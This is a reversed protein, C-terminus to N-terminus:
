GGAGWGSGSGVVRVPQGEAVEDRGTVVVEDGPVLGWEVLVMGDSTPGTVVARRRAVWAGDAAEVVLVAEGREDREVLGVPLAIVGDVTLWTLQVRAVMDAKLAATPGPVELRVPFTRSRPDVATGAFTVTAERVGMGYAQLDVTARSGETVQGAFREPVGAVLEARDPRMLRLVEVGPTVQEGQRVFVGEVIGAFPARLRTQELRDRAEGLQAQAQLLRARAQARETRIRDLELPSIITDRALPTQRRLAEETQEALARAELVAAEASAVAAQEARGDLRAVVQGAAVRDGEGAVAVVTGGTEASLTADAPLEVTGTTTLRAEFSTAQVVRTEVVPLEPAEPEAEGGCGAALLLAAMARCAGRCWPRRRM